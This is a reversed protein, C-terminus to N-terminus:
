GLRDRQGSARNKCLDANVALGEAAASIGIKVGTDKGMGKNNNERAAM